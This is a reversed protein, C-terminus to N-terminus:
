MLIRPLTRGGYRAQRPVCPGDSRERINPGTEARRFAYDDPADIQTERWSSALDTGTVECERSPRTLV